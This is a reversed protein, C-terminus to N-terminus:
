HYKWLITAEQIEVIEREPVRAVLSANLACLM